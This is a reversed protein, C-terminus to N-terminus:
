CFLLSKLGGGGCGPEGQPIIEAETTPLLPWPNALGSPSQWPWVAGRSQQWTSRMCEACVTHVPGRSPHIPRLARSMTKM